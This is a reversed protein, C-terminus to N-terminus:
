NRKIKIKINEMYKMRVATERIESNTEKVHTNQEKTGTKERNKKKKKKKQGSHGTTSHLTETRTPFQVESPWSPRKKPLPNRNLNHAPTRDTPTAEPTYSPDEV